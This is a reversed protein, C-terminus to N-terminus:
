KKRKLINSGNISKRFLEEKLYNQKELYVITNFHLESKAIAEIAESGEDPYIDSIVAVLNEPEVKINNIANKKVCDLFSRITKDYFLLIIKLKQLCDVAGKIQAIESFKSFLDSKVIADAIVINETIDHANNGNLDKIIIKNNRQTIKNSYKEYGKVAKDISYAM